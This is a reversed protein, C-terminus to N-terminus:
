LGEHRRAEAGKERSPIVAVVPADPEPEEPEDAAAAIEADIGLCRLSDKEVISRISSRAISPLQTGHSLTNVTYIAEIAAAPAAMPFGSGFLLKHMVGSSSAGLLTNYLQWPRSAVGSIDAYVREHKGVLLLTEDIWPHGLQCIVIPLGPLSRAVEDWSAPRAFEIEASPPLPEMMTVFVPLGLEACREYVLMAKSHSPHFGQCSPSVTIGALGLGVAAVLLDKVDTSMPDIGAVGVLRRPHKATYEAIFENPVNAGLREARFGLVVAGHVPAMAREHAAPTGDPPRQGESSRGRLRAAIEPGLQDLNAWVRTHLDIIM